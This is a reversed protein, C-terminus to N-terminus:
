LLHMGVKLPYKGPSKIKEMYEGIIQALPLKRRRAPGDGSKNKRGLSLICSWVQLNQIQVALALGPTVWGIDHTLGTSIEAYDQPNRQTVRHFNNPKRCAFST